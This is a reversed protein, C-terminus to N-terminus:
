ATLKFFDRLWKGGGAEDGWQTAALVAFALEWSLLHFGWHHPTTITLMIKYLFTDPM